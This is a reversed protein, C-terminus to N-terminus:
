GRRGQIQNAMMTLSWRGSLLCLVVMVVAAQQVMNVSHSGRSAKKWRKNSSERIRTLTERVWDQRKWFNLVKCSSNSSSSELKNVMRRRRTLKGKELDGDNRQTEKEAKRKAEIATQEAASAVDEKARALKTKCEDIRQKQEVQEEQM